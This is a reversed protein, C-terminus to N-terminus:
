KEEFKAKLKEYIVRETKNRRSELASEKEVRERCEQQTEARSYAYSTEIIQDGYCWELCVDFRGPSTRGLLLTEAEVDDIRQKIDEGTGDFFGSQLDYTVTRMKLM